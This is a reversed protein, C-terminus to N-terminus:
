ALATIFAKNDYGAISIAHIDLLQLAKYKHIFKHLFYNADEIVISLVLISFLPLVKWRSDQAGGM